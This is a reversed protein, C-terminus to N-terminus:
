PEIGRRSPPSMNSLGMRKVKTPQQVTISIRHNITLNITPNLDPAKTAKQRWQPHSHSGVRNIKPKHNFSGRNKWNACKNGHRDLSLRPEVANRKESRKRKNSPMKPGKAKKTSGRSRGRASTLRTESPSNRESLKHLRSRSGISRM